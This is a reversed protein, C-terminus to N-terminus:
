ANTVEVAEADIVRKGLVARAVTCEHTSRKRRTVAPVALEDRGLRTPLRSILVPRRAVRKREIAVGLAISLLIALIM